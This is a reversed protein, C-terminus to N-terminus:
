TRRQRRAVDFLAGHDAAMRHARAPEASGAHRRPFHGEAAAKIKERPPMEGVLDRGELGVHDERPHVAGGPEARSWCATAPEHVRRPEAAVVIELVIAPAMVQDGIGIADGIVQPGLTPRALANMMQWIENRCLGRRRRQARVGMRRVVRREQEGDAPQMAVFGEVYKQRGQGFKGIARQPKGSRAGLLCGQLRAGGRASDFLPDAKKAPAIVHRRKKRGGVDKDTRRAVFRKAIDDDLRPRMAHRDHGRCRRSRALQDLIFGGTEQHGNVVRGRQRCADAAHQAVIIQTALKNGSTGGGKIGAKGFRRHDLSVASRQRSRPPPQTIHPM